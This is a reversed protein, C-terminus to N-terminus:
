VLQNPGLRNEAGLLSRFLVAFLVIGSVTHRFHEGGYLRRVFWYEVVGHRHDHSLYYGIPIAAACVCLRCNGVCLAHSALRGGKERRGLAWVLRCRNSRLLCDM